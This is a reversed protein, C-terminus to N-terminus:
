FLSLQNKEQLDNLCGLSDLKNLLTASLQTRSLLDEKSIFEQEDRAKEISRAM